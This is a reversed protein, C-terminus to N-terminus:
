CLVAAAGREMAKPIFRHGDSEFGKIAVFLNGPETKRSDYSVGKIETEMDATSSIVDLNVLLEKLKM